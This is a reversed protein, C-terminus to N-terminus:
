SSPILLFFGILFPALIFFLTFMIELGFNGQSLKKSIWDTALIYGGAGFVIIAATVIGFVIRLLITM